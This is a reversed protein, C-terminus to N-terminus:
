EGRCTFNNIEVTISNLWWKLEIVDLSEKYSNLEGLHSQARVLFMGVWKHTGGINQCSYIIDHTWITPM